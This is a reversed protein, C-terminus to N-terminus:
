GLSAAHGDLGLDIVDGEVISQEGADSIVGDSLDQLVQLICRSVVVQRCKAAAQFPLM